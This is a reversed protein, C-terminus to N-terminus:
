LAAVVVVFDTRGRAVEEVAAHGVALRHGFVFFFAEEVALGTERLEFAAHVVALVLQSGVELGAAVRLEGPVLVRERKALLLALSFHLPQPAGVVRAEARASLAAIVMAVVHDLEPLAVLVVLQQGVDLGAAEEALLGAHRRDVAEVFAVLLDVAGLVLAVGEPADVLHLVAGGALDAGHAAEEVRLAVVAELVSSDQNVAGHVGGGAGFLLAASLLALVVSGVELGHAVEPEDDEGCDVVEAISEALLAGHAHELAGRARAGFVLAAELLAHDALFVRAGSVVRLHEGFFGDAGLAAVSVGDEDVVALLAARGAGFVAAGNQAADVVGEGSDVVLSLGGAVGGGDEEAVEPVVADVLNFGVRVLDKEKALVGGTLAFVLATNLLADLSFVRGGGVAILDVAVDVQVLGRFLVAGLLAGSHGDVRLGGEAGDVAGAVREAARVAALLRLGEIDADREEVVLQNGSEVKADVLAIQNFGFDQRAATVACFVVAGLELTQM